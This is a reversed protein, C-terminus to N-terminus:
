NARKKTDENVWELGMVKWLTGISEVELCNSHNICGDAVIDKLVQMLRRQMVLTAERRLEGYTTAM